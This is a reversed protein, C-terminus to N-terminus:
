NIDLFLNDLNFTLDLLLRRPFVRLFSLYM